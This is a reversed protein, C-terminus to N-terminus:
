LYQSKRGLSQDELMVKDEATLQLDDLMEASEASVCRLEPPKASGQDSEEILVVM